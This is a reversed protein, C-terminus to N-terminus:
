GNSCEIYIVTKGEYRDAGNLFDRTQNPQKNPQTFFIQRITKIIDEESEIRECLLEATNCNLWGIYFIRGELRYKIAYSYLLDMVSDLKKPNKGDYYLEPILLFENTYPMSYDKVMIKDQKATMKWHIMQLKDGPQYERIESVDSVDSGKRYQVQEEEGDGESIPEAKSDIEVTDPMVMIETESYSLNTFNSIGMIDKVKVSEVKAIIRGCYKSAFNWTICRKEGATAPVIVSLIEENGYFYNFVRIKVEVNESSFWVPNEVFINLDITNNRAVSEQETQLFVKMKKALLYNGAIFYIPLILVIVTFLFMAYNHYFLLGLVVIGLLLIYNIIGKIM